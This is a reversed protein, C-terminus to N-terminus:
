GRLMRVVAKLLRRWRSEPFVIKPKGYGAWAVEYVGLSTSVELPLRFEAGSTKRLAFELSTDIYGENGFGHHRLTDSYRTVADARSYAEHLIEYGNATALDRFLMPNYGFYGHHHYGGMPLDHYLVGGERALRHMVRFAHLQNILHETTGFNTVLDFAGAFEYPIEDVNLDLLMVDDSKFIDLAIYSIGCARMLRAALGRDALSSLDAPTLRAGFYKAFAALTRRGDESACYIEQAGLEAIRFGERLVGRRSLEVILDLNKAGIGM